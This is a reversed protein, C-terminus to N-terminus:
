KVPEHLRGQLAVNLGRPIGAQLKYLPQPYLHSYLCSQMQDIQCGISIAIVRDAVQRVGVMQPQMTYRDIPSFTAVQVSQCLTHFKPMLFGMGVQVLLSKGFCDLVTVAGVM